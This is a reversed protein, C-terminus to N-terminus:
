IRDNKELWNMVMAFSAKNDSFSRRQDLLGYTTPKIGM